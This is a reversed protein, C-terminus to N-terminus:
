RSTISVSWASHTIVFERAVDIIQQRKEIKEIIRGCLFNDLHHRSCMVESEFRLMRGVQDFAIDLVCQSCAFSYAMVHGM